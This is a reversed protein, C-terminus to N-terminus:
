KYGHTYHMFQTNVEHRVEETKVSQIDITQLLKKLRIKGLQKWPIVRSGHTMGQRRSVSLVEMQTIDVGTIRPAYQEIEKMACVLNHFTGNGWCPTPEPDITGSTPHCSAHPQHKHVCVCGCVCACHEESPCWGNGTTEQEAVTGQFGESLVHTQHVEKLLYGTNLQVNFM